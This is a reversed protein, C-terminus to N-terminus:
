FIILKLYIIAHLAHRGTGSITGTILEYYIPERLHQIFLFNFVADLRFGVFLLFVLSPSSIFYFM